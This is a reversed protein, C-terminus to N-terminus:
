ELPEVKTIRATRKNTMWLVVDDTTPDYAIKKTDFETPMQYEIVEGTRPDLRLLRESMNSPAYIYGNKDPASATYPTSYEPVDWRRVEQTRTDFMFIKDNLYEAFWLRDQDDIRGRRASLGEVPFWSVDGTEPNAGIVGGPGRNTAMWANGQSDIRSNGAYPSAGTPVQDQYRVRADVQMTEPDVRTFGTWIKGDPGRSLFQGGAGEVMSLTETEPDFRTLVTGSGPTRMPFWIQDELDVQVDRTGPVDGENVPPMDYETFTATRPDLKWIMQRSEDTYWINGMSDIDMDHSVTGATPMDYQTIIVRTAAGTPRPLTQLEYDWTTGGSLNVSAFYEALETKPVGPTFGWNPPAVFARQGQETNKVARGRRNDNSRAAGDPYYTGMRQIVPLFEEATHRSRMIRQYSHCYACSLLQHVVASKQEPTGPMSMAWERSSLQSGLNATVQLQLDATAPRDATVEVPGTPRLDYGVARTTLEYSGSDLHTRPFRYRGQADTVVSVTFNAGDRRASVVVGDMAGEESSSVVGTLASAADGQARMPERATSGLVCVLTVSAVTVTLRRLM